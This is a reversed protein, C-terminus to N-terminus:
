AAALRAALVTAAREGSAVAGEIMPTTLYDGALAVPLPVGDALARGRARDAVFGPRAIPIGDDFRYVRARAVHGRVAPVLEEVEPM